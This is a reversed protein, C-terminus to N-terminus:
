SLQFITEVKHERKEEDKSNAYGLIENIFALVEKEKRLLTPHDLKSIVIIKSGDRRTHL